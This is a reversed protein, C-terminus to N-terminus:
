SAVGMELKCLFIFTRLMDTQFLIHLSLVGGNNHWPCIIRDFISSIQYHSIGFCIEVIDICWHSKSVNNDQFYFISTNRAYIETLFLCIEVM